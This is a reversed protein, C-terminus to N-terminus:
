TIFFDLEIFHTKIICQNMETMFRVDEQMNISCLYDKMLGKNKQVYKTKGLECTSIDTIKCCCWNEPIDFPIEDEKIGCPNSGALATEKKSNM